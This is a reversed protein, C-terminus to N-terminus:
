RASVCMPVEPPLVVAGAAEEAEPIHERPFRASYPSWHGVGCVKPKNECYELGVVYRSITAKFGHPAARCWPAWRRVGLHAHRRGGRAGVQTTEVVGCPTKMKVKSPRVAQLGGVSVMKPLSAVYAPRRPLSAPM